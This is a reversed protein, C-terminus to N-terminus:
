HTKNARSIECKNPLITFLKADLVTANISLFFFHYMFILLYNSVNQKNFIPIVLMLSSKSTEEKQRIVLLKSRLFYFTHDYM